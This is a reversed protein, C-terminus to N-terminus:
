GHAMSEAAVPTRSLSPASGAALLIGMETASADLSLAALLPVAVLTIQSGVQSVTAWEVSLCSGGFGRKPRYKV